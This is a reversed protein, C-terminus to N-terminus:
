SGIRRRYSSSRSFSDTRFYFFIM